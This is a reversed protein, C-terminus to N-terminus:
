AERSSIFPRRVGSAIRDRDASIEAAVVAARTGTRRPEPRPERIRDYGDRSLAAPRHITRSM